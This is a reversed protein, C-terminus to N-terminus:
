PLVEMSANALAVAVSVGFTHRPSGVMVTDKQQNVAIAQWCGNVFGMDKIGKPKAIPRHTSEEMLGFFRAHEQTRRTKM